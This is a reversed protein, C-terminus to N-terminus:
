GLAKLAFGFLSDMSVWGWGSKDLHAGVVNWCVGFRERNIGALVKVKENEEMKVGAVGPKGMKELSKGVDFLGQLYLLQNYLAKESYEFTMRGSCGYALGKPGLCRHGYVSMQHTRAGCAPDDCILCASYYRSTHRRIQTELQTCITLTSMSKKCGARPCALGKNTLEGVPTIPVEDSSQQYNLGHYEFHQKCGLCLLDLPECDKFRIHDPIQSELTTIENSQEAAKSSGSVRYKSTDLGLCEALLSVNTGDISACLREVPPLIQKHLYYDVDPVLGSDKGLVEDLPHANKAAQEASGSNSGCIVFSMVDKAKVQKGKAMLKLAVQVSPMSNANPYEKPHKGLQTHITYKHVPISNSRMEEGLSRLRDHVQSVVKETDEGSLLYQLLESNV